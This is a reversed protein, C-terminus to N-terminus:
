QREAWRKKIEAQQRLVEQDFDSAVIERLIETRTQTVRDWIDPYFIKHREMRERINVLLTEREDM